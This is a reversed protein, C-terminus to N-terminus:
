ANCPKAGQQGKRNIKNNLVSRRERTRGALKGTSIHSFAEKLVTQILQEADAQNQRIQTELQDCLALLKEVKTVIAQQEELPPIPIVHSVIDRVNIHPSATGITKGAIEVYTKPANLFFLAYKACDYGYLRLLMVRQGLCIPEDTDILGAIGLRGGERIYILDDKKPTLRQIRQIYESESVRRTENILLGAETVDPARLCFYGTNQYKPTNHPCDVYTISFEQMRCWAWGRPLEFPKEKYSTPPLPKQAKIKKEKALKGKEAAIRKLLESAPEVDPHLARWDATIKGEIAEQLIQLRLEKLLAQERNFESKLEDVENEISKRKKLIENQREIPPVPLEIQILDEFRLAKRVTGRAYKAIQHLGEESKLFDLLLEPLLSDKTSFVVYAPSVLGTVGASVLGISGVNIRYPNYAFDGEEILLYKALDKSKKHDTATIGYKNSVGLVEMEEFGRISEARVSKKVVFESLSTVTV